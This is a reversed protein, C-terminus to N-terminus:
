TWFSFVGLADQMPTRTSLIDEDKTFTIIPANSIHFMVHLLYYM